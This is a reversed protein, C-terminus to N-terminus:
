YDTYKRKINCPYCKGGYRAQKSSIIADCEVCTIGCFKCVYNMEGHPVRMSHMVNILFWRDCDDCKRHKRRECACWKGPIREEKCYQCIPSCKDHYIKEEHLTYSLDVPILGDMVYLHVSKKCKSCLTYRKEIESKLNSVLTKVCINARWIFWMRKVRQLRRQIILDFWKLGYELAKRNNREQYQIKKMSLRKRTCLICTKKNMCYFIVPFNTELLDVSEVEVAPLSWGHSGEIENLKLQGARHTFFVEVCGVVRGKESFAVDMRYKNKLCSVETHGTWDSQGRIVTHTQKCACTAIIKFDTNSALSAIWEKTALHMISENCMVNPAHAFHARYIKGKKLYVVKKCGLCTFEGKSKDATQPFVVVGGQRAAPVRM